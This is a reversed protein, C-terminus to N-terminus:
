SFESLTRLCAMGGLLIKAEDRKHSLHWRDLEHHIRGCPLVSALLQLRSYNGKEISSWVMRSPLFPSAYSAKAPTKTFFFLFALFPLISGNPRLSAFRTLGSWVRNMSCKTKRYQVPLDNSAVRHVMIGKNLPRSEIDVM